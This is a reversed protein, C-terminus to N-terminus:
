LVQELFCGLCFMFIVICFNLCPHLPQYLTVNYLSTPVQWGILILKLLWASLKKFGRHIALHTHNIYLINIDGYLTVLGCHTLSFRAAVLFNYTGQVIPVTEGSPRAGCRVSPHLDFFVDFSWTVPRQSPFEPSWHIGRVFPWYRPFHKWKIVDDHTNEYACLCNALGTLANDKMVIVDYQARNRRLDGAERNNVWINIWACILSFMSARRWQDKHHSNVPWRHIGRVFPWYRVFPCDINGNSSTMMHYIFQLCLLLNYVNCLYINCLYSPREFTKYKCYTTIGVCPFLSQSQFLFFYVNPFFVYSMKVGYVCLSVLTYTADHM